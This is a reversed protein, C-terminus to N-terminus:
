VFRLLDSEIRYQHDSGIWESVIALAEKNGGRRALKTIAALKGALQKTTNLKAARALQTGLIGPTNKVADFISRLHYADLDRLFSEARSEDWTPANGNPIAVPTAISSTRIGLQKMVLVVDAVSGRVRVVELEVSEM